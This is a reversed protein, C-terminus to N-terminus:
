GPSSVTGNGAERCRHRSSRYEDAATVDRRETGDNPVRKVRIQMRDCRAGIQSKTHACSRERIAGTTVDETPRAM